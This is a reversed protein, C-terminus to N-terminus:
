GSTVRMPQWACTMDPEDHASAVCAPATAASCCVTCPCWCTIKLVVVHKSTGELSSHVCPSNRRAYWSPVMVHQILQWEAVVLRRPGLSVEEFSSSTAPWRRSSWCIGAVWDFTWELRSISVLGKPQQVICMQELMRRQICSRLREQLSTLGHKTVHCSMSPHQWRTHQSTGRETKKDLQLLQQTESAHSHKCKQPWSYILTPSPKWMMYWTQM